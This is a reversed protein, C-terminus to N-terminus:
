VSPVLRQVNQIGNSIGPAAAPSALGITSLGCPVSTQTQSYLLTGTVANVTANYEAGTSGSVAGFACTSMMVAWRAGTGAGLFSVGGVLGFSVNAHPYQSLFPQASSAVLGLAVSSDIANSPIASFFAFIAGCLGGSITGAIEATGDLVLVALIAGGGNRFLFEWAPAIGSTLNGSFSPVNVSGTFGVAPTFSCNQTGGSSNIAVTRVSQSDLGAAIILAWGGGQYSSAAQSAIPAAQSYTEDAGPSSKGLQIVGSFILGLLLVAIAVAVV